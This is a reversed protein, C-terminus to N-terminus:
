SPSTVSLQLFKYSSSSQTYEEDFRIQTISDLFIPYSPYLFTHLTQPSFRFTLTQKSCRPMRPFVFNIHIKFFYSPHTYVPNTQSHIPLLTAPHTIVTIFRYTGHFPPLEESATCSDSKGYHSHEM